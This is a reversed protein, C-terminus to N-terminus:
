QASPGRASAGQGAALDDRIAAASMPVHARYSARALAHTVIPATFLLFAATAIGKLAAQMPGLFILSALVGGVGWTLTLGIGHLRTYTDPYHLLGYAGFLCFSTGLVLAAVGLVTFLNM